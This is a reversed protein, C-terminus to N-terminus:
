IKRQRRRAAGMAATWSVDPAHAFGIFAAQDPKAAVQARVVVGGQVVGQAGTPLHKAQKYKVAFNQVPQRARVASDLEDPM